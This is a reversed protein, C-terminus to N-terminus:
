AHGTVIYEIQVGLCDGIVVLKGRGIQQGCAILRIESQEVPVSLNIVYGTRLSALQALSMAASDLEFHVPVDLAAVNGAITPAAPDSDVDLIGDQEKLEGKMTIKEGNIRVACAWHHGTTSGCFLTGDMVNAVAVQDILLVDGTELSNLLFSSWSRTAIRLKTRIRWSQVGPRERAPLLDVMDQLASVCGADASLLVVRTPIHSALMVEWAAFVPTPTGVAIGISMDAGQISAVGMAHWRRDGVRKAAQSFRELIPALLRAAVLTAFPIDSVTDATVALRLAPLIESPFGLKLTGGPCRFIVILMEGDAVTPFSRKVNVQFIQEMWNLIQPASVLRMLAAEGASLERLDHAALPRPTKEARSKSARRVM